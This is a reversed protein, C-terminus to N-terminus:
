NRKHYLEYQNNINNISIKIKMLKNSNNYCFYNYCYYYYCCCCCCCCCCCYCCCEYLMLLLLLLLMMNLQIKWGRLLFSFM